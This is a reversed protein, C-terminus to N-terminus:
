RRLLSQGNLVEECAGLIQIASDDSLGTAHTSRTPPQPTATTTTTTATTIAPVHTHHRAAGDASCRLRPTFATHPPMLPHPLRM